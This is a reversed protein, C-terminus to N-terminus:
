IENTSILEYVYYRGDKEIIKVITEFYKYRTEGSRIIDYGIEYTVKWSNEDINEIKTVDLGYYRETIGKKELYVLYDKAEKYRPGNPDLYDKLLDFDRYNISDVYATEYDHLFSSLNDQLQKTTLSEEANEESAYLVKSGQLTNTEEISGYSDRNFTELLWGSDEDYSFGMNMVFNYEELAPLNDAYVSESIYFVSPIQLILKKSEEDEYVTIGDRNFEIKEVRGMYNYNPEIYETVLKKVNSSVGTLPDTTKKALAQLFEESFNLVNGTLKEYQEDNVLSAVANTQYGDVKILDSQIEGWPLNSVIQFSPKASLFIPGVEESEGNENLEIKKDNMQIYVKDKLFKNYNNVGFYVTTIEFIDDLYVSNNYPDFIHVELEESIEGLDGSYELEAQYIGPLFPGYKNLDKGKEDILFDEGNFTCQLGEYNNNYYAYQDNYYVKYNPYFLLKNGDQEIWYDPQNMKDFSILKLLSEVEIDKVEQGEEHNVLNKITGKDEEELAKVFRKEVNELSYYSKLGLHAFLILAILGVIPWVKKNDMTKSKRPETAITEKNPNEVSQNDRVQDAKNNVKEEPQRVGCYMCVKHNAPIKEGCEICYKKM